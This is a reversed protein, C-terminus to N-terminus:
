HDGKKEAAHHQAQGCSSLATSRPSAEVKYTARDGRHQGLVLAAGRLWAYSRPATLLDYTLKDSLLHRVARIATVSPRAAQCALVWFYSTAFNFSRPDYRRAEANAERLRRMWDSAWILFDPPVIQLPLTMQGLLAHRQLDSNSFSLGIRSLLGAALTMKRDVIEQRRLRVTQDPHVRRDVLVQPLNRVVHAEAIRIFVDTDECVSFQEHYPNRKLVEARGMVSSQQFASRFLLWARIDSAALPPVRLGRRRRGQGDVKGACSGVMAVEPHQALFKTQEHLRNPRALDDSDLWGIFRGRAHQLGTNRASPIGLNRDHRVLKVRPDAFSEITSSSGDTSGDDVVVVEFDTMTQGLLSQIAHRIYRERNYVPVIISVVPPDSSSRM